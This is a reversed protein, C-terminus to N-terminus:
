FLGNELFHAKKNAAKPLKFKGKKLASRMSMVNEAVPKRNLWLLSDPLLLGCDSFLIPDSEVPILLHSKGLLGHLTSYKWNECASTLGARVPNQYVYKYCSMFYHHTQIECRYHRSGWNQNVKGSMQNMAKSSERMFYGMSLGLPDSGTRCVLHFHNPMLVFLHIKLDFFKHTLYLLESMIKWVEDLEVDFAAKNHRRGTVHFPFESVQPTNFRAM